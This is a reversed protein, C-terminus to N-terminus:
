VLLHLVDVSDDVRDSFCDFFNDDTIVFSEARPIKAATLLRLLLFQLVADFTSGNQVPLRAPRGTAKRPLAALSLRPITCDATLAGAGDAGLGSFGCRAGLM